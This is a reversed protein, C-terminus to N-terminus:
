QPRRITEFSIKMKIQFFHGSILWFNDLIYKNENGSLIIGIRQLCLTAERIKWNREFFEKRDRHDLDFHDFDFVSSTLVAM